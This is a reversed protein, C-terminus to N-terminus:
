SVGIQKSNNVGIVGRLTSTLNVFRSFLPFLSTISVNSDFLLRCQTFIDYRLNNDVVRLVKVFTKAGVIIHLSWPFYNDCQWNIIPIFRQNIESLLDM